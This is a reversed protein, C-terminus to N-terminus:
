QTGAERQPRLSSQLLSSVLCDTIRFTSEWCSWDSEIVDMQTRVGRNCRCQGCRRPTFSHAPLPYGKCSQDNELNLCETGLYVPSMVVEFQGERADPAKPLVLGASCGRPNMKKKRGSICVGYLVANKFVAAM